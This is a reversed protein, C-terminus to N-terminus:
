HGKYSLRSTAKRKLKSALTGDMNKVDVVNEKFFHIKDFWTEPIMKIVLGIILGFAGLVICILHQTITLPSCKVFEGGFEVFFFQVISVSGMIVFFLPNNMFNAFVNIDKKNLKRSNISNFIQMLVFTQFFITFHVYGDKDYKPFDATNAIDFIEPGLFLIIFLVILQYIAHGSIFRKMGPTIIDEKISYPRRNLLEETPPETALALAAFTDMILNIWLMQVATLPSSSLVVSGVFTLVLAVINITMQFQVFKRISEFINRGWKCALVISNFNDDLLIIGAAEKAIATGSDMAFGIHAKKLAPADNTGDGTVAVVNDLEMLGTVLAYKDEPTSRSMVRLEKIIVKFMDLDQVKKIM